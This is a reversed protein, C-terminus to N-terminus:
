SAEPSLVPGGLCDELAARTVPGVRLLELRGHALNVLTSAPGGQTEGGDLVLDVQGGFLTGVEPARRLPVGGAQNASTGTVPHGFAEAIRRPIAHSSVRLAVTGGPCAPLSLGVRLTLIMTLPGPWFSAALAAAVPSETWRCLEAVQEVSAALLLLPRGTAYGKLQLLRGVAAVHRPDVALGYSSETPM